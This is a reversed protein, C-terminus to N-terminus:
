PRAPEGRRAPEGGGRGGAAEGGGAPEGDPGAPEGDLGAPQDGARGTTQDAGTEDGGGAGPEDGGGAGPEDRGGAGARRAVLYGGVAVLAWAATAAVLALWVPVRSVLVALVVAFPLLGLTGFTAGGAEERAERVGEEQAVLTVSALLTAPFALFLGGVLPGALASVIGAFASVGAGFAFRILWDRVQTDKLEKPSVKIQDDSM